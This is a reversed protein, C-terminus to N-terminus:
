KLNQWENYFQRLQEDNKLYRKDYHRTDGIIKIPNGRAIAFDPIDRNVYSGRYIFCGKGITVGPVVISMSEIATYKGISIPKKILGKKEDEPTDLYHKGYLRITAFSSHTYIGVWASIQCGEGIKLGGTGDLITHHWIFVNEGMEIREKHVFCTTNSYRVNSITKGYPDRYNNYIMRPATLSAFLNQFKDRLKNFIM